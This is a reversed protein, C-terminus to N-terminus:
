GDEPRLDNMAQWFDEWDESYTDQHHCLTCECHYEKPIEKEYETISMIELHTFKGCGLCTTLLDDKNEALQRILNTNNM